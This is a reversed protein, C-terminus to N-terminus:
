AQLNGVSVDGDVVQGQPGGMEPNRAQGLLWLLFWRSLLEGPTFVLLGVQPPVLPPNCLLIRLLIWGVIGSVLHSSLSSSRGIFLLLLVSVGASVSVFCVISLVVRFPISAGHGVCCENERDFEVFVVKSRGAFWVDGLWGLELVGAGKVMELIRQPDRIDRAAPILSSINVGIMDGTRHSSKLSALDPSTRCQHTSPM